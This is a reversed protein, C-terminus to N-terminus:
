FRINILIYSVWRSVAVIDQIIYVNISGSSHQITSKTELETSKSMLANHEPSRHLKNNYPSEPSLKCLLRIMKSDVNCKILSVFRKSFVFVRDPMVKNLRYLETTNTRKCTKKPRM